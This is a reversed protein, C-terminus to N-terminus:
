CPPGQGSAWSLPCVREWQPGKKYREFLNRKAVHKQTGRLKRAEGKRKFILDKSDTAELNNMLKYITILDERETKYALRYAEYYTHADQDPQKPTGSVFCPTTGPCHQLVLWGKGPRLAAVAVVRSQEQGAATCDERNSCAHLRYVFPDPVCVTRINKYSYKM